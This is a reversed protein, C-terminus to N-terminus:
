EELELIPRETFLYTRMHADFVPSRRRIWELTMMAHEVEENKNHILVDHLGPESCADARQQYWDVAELEEILTVLARHMNKTEESLLEAPEHLQESSGM